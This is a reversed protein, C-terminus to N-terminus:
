TGELESIKQELRYESAPNIRKTQNNAPEEVRLTVQTKPADEIPVLYTQELEWCYIVFHDIDDQYGERSHGGARPRTSRVEAVVTGGEHRGTKCQLRHFKGQMEVVFDYRNNEGFPTLVTMGASVLEALVIAETMEGKDKPSESM